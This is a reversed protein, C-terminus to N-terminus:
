VNLYSVLTNKIHVKLGEHSCYSLKLDKEGEYASTLFAGIMTVSFFPKHLIKQTETRMKGFELTDVMDYMAAVKTYYEDVYFAIHEEPVKNIIANCYLKTIEQFSEQDKQITSWCKQFEKYIKVIQGVTLVPQM